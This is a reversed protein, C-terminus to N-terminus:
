PITTDPGTPDVVARVIETIARVTPRADSNSLRILVIRRTINQTLGVRVIPVSSNLSVMMDTVFTAGLGKGALALSVATDFSEHRVVPEFGVQRCATRVARGFQSDPPPMIWNWDAADRLDITFETRIGYAGASVALDFRETRLTIMEIDSSRQMPNSPYDLGFAVDVQRRQVATVVEDLELERSSLKLHPYRRQAAAVVPPLLTAATSGFTGVLLPAAVEEKVARLADLASLEAALIREAHEALVTGSDTLAVNRGMKTILQAGVNKELAAIQQSVAGATYGLYEAVALM